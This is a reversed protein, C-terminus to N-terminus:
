GAASSQGFFLILLIPFLTVSVAAGHLAWHTRRGRYLARGALWYLVAVILGLASLVLSGTFGNEDGTSRAYSAAFAFLLIGLASLTLLVRNVILVVRSWGTLGAASGGAASTPNGADPRVTYGRRARLVGGFAGLAPSLVLFAAHEIASVNGADAAWGYVGMAVCLFASLAGHMAEAQRAMGAAVWGGVVSALAGLLLASSYLAPSNSLQEGYAAAQQSAPMAAVGSSGLVWAFLPLTLINTALIDVVGGILVAKPSARM